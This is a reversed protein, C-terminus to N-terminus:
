KLTLEVKFNSPPGDQFLPRQHIDMGLEGLQSGGDEFPAVFVIVGLPDDFIWWDDGYLEVWVVVPDWTKLQLLADKIEQSDIAWKFGLLHYKKQNPLFAGVPVRLLEVRKRTNRPANTFFGNGGVLSVVIAFESLGWIDERLGSKLSDLKVVLNQGLSLQERLTPGALLSSGLTLFVSLCLLKKM